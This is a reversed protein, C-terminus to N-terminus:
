NNFKSSVLIGKCNKDDELCFVFQKAKYDIKQEKYFAYSKYSLGHIEKEDYSLYSENKFQLMNLVEIVRPRVRTKIEIIYTDTIPNYIDNFSESFLPNHTYIYIQLLNIIKNYTNETNTNSNNTRTIASEM